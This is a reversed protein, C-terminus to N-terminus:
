CYSCTTMPLNTITRGFNTIHERYAMHGIAVQELKKIHNSSNIYDNEYMTQAGDSERFSPERAFENLNM